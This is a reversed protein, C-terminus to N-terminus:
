NPARYEAQLRCEVSRDMSSVCEHFRDEGKDRFNFVYNELNTDLIDVKGNTREDPLGPRPSLACNRWSIKKLPPLQLHMVGSSGPIGIQNSAWRFLKPHSITKRHCRWKWNEWWSAQKDLWKVEICSIVVLLVCVLLKRSTNYHM